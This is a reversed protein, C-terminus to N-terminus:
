GALLISVVLVMAFPWPLVALCVILLSTAM